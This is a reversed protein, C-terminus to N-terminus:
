SHLLVGCGKVWTDKMIRFGSGYPCSQCRWSVVSISNPEWSDHKQQNKPVSYEALSKRACTPLKPLHLRVQSYGGKTVNQILGRRLRRIEKGVNRPRWILNGWARKEEFEVSQVEKQEAEEKENYIQMFHNSYSCLLTLVLSGSFRRQMSILGNSKFIAEPFSKTWTCFIGQWFIALITEWDTLLIIGMWFGELWAGCSADSKAASVELSRRPQGILSLKCCEYENMNRTWFGM